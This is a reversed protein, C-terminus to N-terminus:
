VLDTDPGRPDGVYGPLVDKHPETQAVGLDSTCSHGNEGIRGEKCAAFVSADESASLRLKALDALPAQDTPGHRAGSVATRCLAQLCSNEAKMAAVEREHASLLLSLSSDMVQKFNMSGDRAELPHGDSLPLLSTLTGQKLAPAALSENDDSQPGARWGDTSCNPESNNPMCSPPRNRLTQEIETFCLKVFRRLDVVDKVTATNSGRLDLV